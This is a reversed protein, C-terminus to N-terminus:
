PRASFRAGRGAVARPEAGRAAAALRRAEEEDETLILDLAAGPHGLRGAANIRPALRFGVLRLRRRGSRSPAVADARAPGPKRTRALRRLGAIAFFETRTSCRSSTRSPPSRWSTSTAADRRRRLAEALKAVVGTGCLEPFPYDSPRTAVVPCDPLEDGPRHHDTVVVDLGLAKAEAVEKVATIGCDVTVVLACGEDALRAITASQRRLGRRVPEAPALRGGCRPQPACCPSLRPASGTSTTTATSASGSAGSSRSGSGHRGGAGHRRPPASRPWPRGGRPVRTGHRPRRVRPPRPRSRDGRPARARGCPAAGRRAPM